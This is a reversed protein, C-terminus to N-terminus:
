PEWRGSRTGVTVKLETDVGGRQARGSRGARFSEICPFHHSAVGANRASHQHAQRSPEVSITRAIFGVNRASHSSAPEAQLIVRVVLGINRTLSKRAGPERRRWTERDLHRKQQSRM